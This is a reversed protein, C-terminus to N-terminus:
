DAQPYLAELLARYKTAVVKRKMKQTPTLEGGVETLEGPIVAFKKVLQADLGNGADRQEIGHADRLVRAPRRVGVGAHIELQKETVEAHGAGAHIRQAALVVHLTGAVDPREGIQKGAVLRQAIHRYPAADGPRREALLRVGRRIDAAPVGTIVEAREPTADRV